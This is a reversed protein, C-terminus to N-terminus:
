TANTYKGIRVKLGAKTSKKWTYCCWTNCEAINGPKICDQQSVRMSVMERKCGEVCERAVNREICWRSNLTPKLLPPITM